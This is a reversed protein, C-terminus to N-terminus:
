DVQSEDGFNSENYSVIADYVTKNIKEILGYKLVIERDIIDSLQKEYQTFYYDMMENISEEKDGLDIKKFEEKLDILSLYMFYYNGAVENYVPVFFSQISVAVGENRTIKSYDLTEGDQLNDVLYEYNTYTKLYKEIFEDEINDLTLDDFGKYNLSKAFELIEEKVSNIDESNLAGLYKVYLSEPSVYETNDQNEYGKIYFLEHAVSPEDVLKDLKFLAEISSKTNVYLHYGFTSVIPNDHVVEKEVVKKEVLEDMQSNWIERVGNEFEEVMQGKQITLAECIINLGSDYFSKLESASVNGLNLYYNLDDGISDFNGNAFLNAIRNCFDNIGKDESLDEKNRIAEVCKFILNYLGQAKAKQEDTYNELYTINGNDLICILLHYGEMDLFSDLENAYYALTYFNNFYNMDIISNYFDDMLFQYVYFVVMDAMTKAEYNMVTNAFVILFENFEMEGDFGQAAYKGNLYNAKLARLCFDANDKAWTGKEDDSFCEFVNKGDCYGEYDFYTNVKSGDPKCAITFVWDFSMDSIFSGASFNESNLKDLTKTRREGSDTFEVVVDDVTVDVKEDNNDEDGKNEENGGKKCGVVIFMLSAIFILAILKKLVNKM